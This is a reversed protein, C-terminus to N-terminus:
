DKTAHGKCGQVYFKGNELVADSGGSHYAKGLVIIHSQRQDQMVAEGSAAAATIPLAKGTVVNVALLDKRAALTTPRLPQTSCSSVTFDGHARLLPARDPHTFFRKSLAAAVACLNSQNPTIPPHFKLALPGCQLAEPNVNVFILRITFAGTETITLEQASQLIGVLRSDCPTFELFSSSLHNYPLPSINAFQLSM